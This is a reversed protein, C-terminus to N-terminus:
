RTSSRATTSKNKRPGSVAYDVPNLYPSNSAVHGACHLCCESAKPSTCVLARYLTPHQYPCARLYAERLIGIRHRVM